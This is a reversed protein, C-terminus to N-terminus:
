RWNANPLLMMLAIHYGTDKRLIYAIKIVIIYKSAPKARDTIYLNFVSIGRGKKNSAQLILRTILVVM